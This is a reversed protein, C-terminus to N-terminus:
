IVDSIGMNTTNDEDIDEEKVHYMAKANMDGPIVVISLDFYTPKVNIMYVPIGDKLEMIQYKIHDCHEDLTYSKNGCYSCVDYKVGTGMSVNLAKGRKLKLCESIADKYNVEIVLEVRHQSPNYYAYHIKGIANDEDKSQHFKYVKAKTEFTKYNYTLTDMESLVGPIPEAMFADGNDNPGYYEWSTVALVIAVVNRDHDREKYAEKAKSLIDVNVNASSAFKNLKEENDMKSYYVVDNLDVKKKMNVNNMPKTNFM